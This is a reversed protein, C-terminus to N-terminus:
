AASHPKAAKAEAEAKLVAEYRARTGAPMEWVGTLYKWLTERRIGVAKARRCIGPFRVLKASASEGPPLLM